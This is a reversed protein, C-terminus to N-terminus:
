AAARPRARRARAKRLPVVAAASRAVVKESSKCVLVPMPAATILGPIVSGMMLRLVANRGESGVVILDCRRRQAMRVICKAEDEGRDMVSQHSVGAKDAVVAAAALFREAGARAERDFDEESLINWAMVEVQAVPYRPLAHFFLLKSGHVKALAVGKKVSARSVPRSDVVILIHKFM